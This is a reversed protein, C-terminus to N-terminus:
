DEEAVKVIKDVLERIDEVLGDSPKWKSQLRCYRDCYPNTNSSDYRKCFECRQFEHSNELILDFIRNKKTRNM